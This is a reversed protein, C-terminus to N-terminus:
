HINGEYLIIYSYIDFMYSIYTDILVEEKKLNLAYWINNM